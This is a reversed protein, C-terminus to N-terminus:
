ILGERLFQNGISSNLNIWEPETPNKPPNLPNFGIHCFACAMGVKYPPEFAAPNALYEPASWHKPDFKENKFLQLGIVGSSYGFKEPDWRLTGDKMRDIMLGFQDPKEAAVSDPDNILGLKTFRDKRPVTMLMRFFDIRLNTFNHKGGTIKTLDQWFGPNDVGVWWHWTDMGDGVAAPDLGYTKAGIAAQKARYENYTIEGPRIPRGFEYDFEYPANQEKGPSPDPGKKDKLEASAFPPILLAAALFLSNRLLSKNARM